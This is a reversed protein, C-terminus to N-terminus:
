EGKDKIKIIRGKYRFSGKAKLVKAAFSDGGKEITAQDGEIKVETNAM